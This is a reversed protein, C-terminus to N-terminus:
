LVKIEEMVKDADEVGLMGCMMTYRTLLGIYQDWLETGMSAQLRKAENLTSLNPTEDLKIYVTLWDNYHKMDKIHKSIGNYICKCPTAPGDNKRCLKMFRHEEGCGSLCLIFFCCFIIKKIM